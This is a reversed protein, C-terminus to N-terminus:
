QSPESSALANDSQEDPEPEPESDPEDSVEAQPSLLAQTAARLEFVDIPKVISDASRSISALYRDADRDLLLLVPVHDLRGAEIEQALQISVAVGGMSGIQLDLIVLDTETAKVDALVGRGSSIRRVQVDKGAIAAEVVNLVSPADGAILVESV